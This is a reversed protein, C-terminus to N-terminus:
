MDKWCKIWDDLYNKVTSLHPTTTGPDIINTYKQANIDKWDNNFPCSGISDTCFVITETLVKWTTNAFGVISGKAVRGGEPDVQNLISSNLQLYPRVRISGSNVVGSSPIFYPSTIVSTEHNIDSEVVKNVTYVYRSHIDSPDVVWWAVGIDLDSAQLLYTKVNSVTVYSTVWSAINQRTPIDVSRVNSAVINYM